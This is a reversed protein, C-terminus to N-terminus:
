KGGSGNNRFRPKRHETFRKYKDNLAKYSSKLAGIQKNKSVLQRKLSFNESEIAAYHNHLREEHETQKDM